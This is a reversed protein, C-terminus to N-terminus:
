LETCGAGGPQSLGAMALGLRGLDFADRQAEYVLRGDYMVVIRDGLALLEELDASILLVAM